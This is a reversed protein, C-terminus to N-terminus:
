KKKRTLGALSCLGTFLLLFASPVPVTAQILGSTPSLSVQFEKSEFLDYGGAGDNYQLKTLIYSYLEGEYDFSFLEGDTLYNSGIGYLSGYDIASILLQNVEEDLYFNEFTWATAGVAPVANGILYDDGSEIPILNFDNSVSFYFTFAAINNENTDQINMTFTAAYASSCLTFVNFLIFLIGMKKKM